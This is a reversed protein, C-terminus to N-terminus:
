YSDKSIDLQRKIRRKCRDRYEVQAIQFENMVNVFDRLLVSSHPTKNIRHSAPALEDELEDKEEDIEREIDALTHKL